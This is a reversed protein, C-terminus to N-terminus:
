FQRGRISEEGTSIINPYDWEIILQSDDELYGEDVLKRYRAMLEPDSRSKRTDIDLFAERVVSLSAPDTMWDGLRDTVTAPNGTAVNYGFEIADRVVDPPAYYLYRPIEVKWANSNWGDKIWRVGKDYYCGSLENIVAGHEAAVDQAIPLIDFPGAGHGGYYADVPSPIKNDFPRWKRLYEKDSSPYDKLAGSDYLLTQGEVMSEAVEIPIDDSVAGKGTEPNYGAFVWVDSPNSNPSDYAALATYGRPGKYVKSLPYDGSNWRSYKFRRYEEEPTEEIGTPASLNDANERLMQVVESSYGDKELSDAMQRSRPASAAIKSVFDRAAFWSDEDELGFGYILLIGSNRMAKFLNDEFDKPRKAKKRGRGQKIARANRLRDDMIADAAYSVANRAWNPSGELEYSPFIGAFPNPGGWGAPANKYEVHHFDPDNADTITIQVFTDFFNAELRVGDEEYVYTGDKFQIDGYPIVEGM